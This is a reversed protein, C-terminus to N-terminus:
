EVSDLLSILVTAIGSYSVLDVTHTFAVGDITYVCPEKLNAPSDVKTIMKFTGPDPVSTITVPNNLLDNYTWSTVIISKYLGSITVTGTATTVSVGPDVYSLTVVPSPSPILIPEGTDPDIGDTSVSIVQTFTSNFGVTEAITSLITAM